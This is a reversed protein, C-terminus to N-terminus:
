NSFSWDLNIRLRASPGLRRQVETRLADMMAQSPKASGRLALVARDGDLKLDLFVYEPYRQLGAKLQSTLAILDNEKYKRAKSTVTTETIVHM